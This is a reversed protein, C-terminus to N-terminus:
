NEEAYKQFKQHLKQEYSQTPIDDAREIFRIANAIIKAPKGTKLSRVMPVSRGDIVSPIGWVTNLTECIYAILEQMSGFSLDHLRDIFDSYTFVDVNASSFITKYLTNLAARNEETDLNNEALIDGFWASYDAKLAAIMEKTSIEYISDELSGKDDTAETGMLVVLAPTAALYEASENRWKTIAGDFDVYSKAKYAETLATSYSDNEGQHLFVLAQKWEERNEREFQQFREYTLKAVFTNGDAYKLQECVDSYIVPNDIGEIRVINTKSPEREMQELIRMLLVKTLQKM